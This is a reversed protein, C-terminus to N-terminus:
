HDAIWGRVSRAYRIEMHATVPGKYTRPYVPEDGSLRYYEDYTSAELMAKYFRARPDDYGAKERLMAEDPRRFQGSFRKVAM